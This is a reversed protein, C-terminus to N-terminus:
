REGACRPCMADGSVGMVFATPVRLSCRTLRYTASQMVPETFLYLRRRPEFAHTLGDEGSQRWLWASALKDNNDEREVDTM